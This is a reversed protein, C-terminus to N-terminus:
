LKLKLSVFLAFLLAILICRLDVAFSVFPIVLFYASNNEITNNLVSLDSSKTLFVYGNYVFLDPRWVRRADLALHTCNDWDEPNWILSEDNWQQSCFRWTNPDLYQSCNHFEKKDKLLDIQIIYTRKTPDSTNQKSVDKRPKLALTSGKCAHKM